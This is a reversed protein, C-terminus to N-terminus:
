NPNSIKLVNQHGVWDGPNVIPGAAVVVEVHGYAVQHAAGLQQIFNLGDM